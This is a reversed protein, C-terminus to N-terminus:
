KELLMLCDNKLAEVYQKFTDYNEFRLNQIVELSIPCKLDISNLITKLGEIDMNGDVIRQHSDRKGDNGHLHLAILRSQYKKLIEFEKTGHIHDHGVDYCFGVTEDDFTELVKELYPLGEKTLNEFALQVHHKKANAILVKIRELGKPNIYNPDCCDNTLHIVIVPVHYRGAIEICKFYQNMVYEAKNEDDSFLDYAHAYPTHFNEIELQFQNLILQITQDHDGTLEPYDDGLYLAVSDFGAEKIARFREEISVNGGFWAYLGIKKM